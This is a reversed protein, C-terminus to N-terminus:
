GSEAVSLLGTPIVAPGSPAKHNVSNVASLIPRTVVDPVIESNENGVVPEPGYPIVAPGSPANHNVSCDLLLIPRRVEVPVSLSYTIGDTDVATGPVDTGLPMVTPGSPAKHNVSVKVFLM